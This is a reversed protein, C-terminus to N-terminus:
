SIELYATEFKKAIVPMLYNANILKKGNQSFNNYLNESELLIKMKNIYKEIDYNSITYGSENDIVVEPIGGVKSAIVPIGCSLAELIVGPLGEIKSPLLMLGVSKILPIVNKEFGWFKIKDSLKLQKVYDEIEKRLIGDGVLWLASNPKIESYAKFIKILFKHNKEPSFNGIHIIKNKKNDNEFASITEFNYTGIPITIVKNNLSPYLQLLDKKSYNSVSIIKTTKHLLYKNLRKKLSSKIFYSMTSANRFVIPKNWKFLQKSFVAYKLTDGSNAQIIDYHEQKIIKHIKKFTKFDFFRNKLNANAYTFNLDFPLLKDTGSLVLVDVTHGLKILEESLQCAFIEAGRLQNKQIIQLIKM